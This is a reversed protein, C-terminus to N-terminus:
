IIKGNTLKPHESREKCVGVDRIYLLELPVVKFTQGSYPLTDFFRSETM